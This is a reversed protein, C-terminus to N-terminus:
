LLLWLGVFASPALSLFVSFAFLFSPVPRVMVVLFLTAYAFLRRSLRLTPQLLVLGAHLSWLAMLAAGGILFSVRIYSPADVVILVKQFILLCAGLALVFLLSAGSPSYPHQRLCRERYLRELGEDRFRLLPYHYPREGNPSLFPDSFGSFADASAFVCSCRKWRLRVLPLFPTRQLEWCVRAAFARTAEASERAKELAASLLAATFRKGRCLGVPAESSAAM